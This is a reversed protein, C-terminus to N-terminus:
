SEARGLIEILQGDIGASVAKVFHNKPEPKLALPPREARLTLLPPVSDTAREVEGVAVHLDAALQVGVLKDPFVLLVAVFRRM